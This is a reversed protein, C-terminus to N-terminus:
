RDNEKLRRELLENEIKLKMGQLVSTELNKYIYDDLLEAKKMMFNQVAKNMREQIVLREPTNEVVAFNIKNTNNKSTVGKMIDSKYIDTDEFLKGNGNQCYRDMYVNLKPVYVMEQKIEKDTM